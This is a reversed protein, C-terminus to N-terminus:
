WNNQEISITSQPTTDGFSFTLGVYNTMGQLNIPIISTYHQLKIWIEIMWSLMEDCTASLLLYPQPWHISEDMM